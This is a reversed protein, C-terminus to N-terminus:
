YLTVPRTLMHAQSMNDWHPLVIFHANPGVAVFLCRMDYIRDGGRQRLVVQSFCSRTCDPILEKFLATVAGAIHLVQSFCSRTCVPFFETVLQGSTFSIGCVESVKKSTLFTNFNSHSINIRQRDMVLFEVNGTHVLEITVPTSLSM